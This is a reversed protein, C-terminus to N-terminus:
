RRAYQESFGQEIPLHTVLRIFDAPNKRFRNPVHLEISGGTGSKM